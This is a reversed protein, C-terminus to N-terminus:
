RNKQMEENSMASGGYKVVIVKRNFKQIYPLAEVLVEAKALVEEMGKEMVSSDKRPYFLDSGTDESVGRTDNNKRDTILTSKLM